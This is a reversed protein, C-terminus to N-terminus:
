FHVLLSIEGAARAPLAGFATDRAGATWSGILRLEDAPGLAITIAHRALVSGHYPFGHGATLIWRLAGPLDLHRVHLAAFAYGAIAIAGGAVSALAAHAIGRARTPASLVLMAIVFEDHRHWDHREGHAYDTLAASVGGNGSGYYSKPENPEINM